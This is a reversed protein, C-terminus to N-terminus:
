CSGTIKAASCRMIWISRRRTKPTSMTYLEGFKKKSILPKCLSVWKSLDEESVKEFEPAVLRIIAIADM